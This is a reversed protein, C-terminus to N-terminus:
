IIYFTINKGIPKKNLKVTILIDYDTLIKIIKKQMLINITGSVVYYNIAKLTYKGKNFSGQFSLNEKYKSLKNFFGYDFKNLLTNKSDQHIIINFCYLNIFTDTHNFDNLGLNKLLKDSVNIIM